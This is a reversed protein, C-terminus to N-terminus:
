KYKDISDRKLIRITEEIVNIRFTKQGSEPLHKQMLNKAITAVRLFESIKQTNKLDTDAFEALSEDYIQLVAHINERMKRNHNVVDEDSMTFTQASLSLFALVMLKKM